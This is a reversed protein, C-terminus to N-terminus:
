NKVFSKNKNNSPILKGGLEVYKKRAEALKDYNGSNVSQAALQHTVATGTAIPIDEINRTVPTAQVYIKQNKSENQVDDLLTNQTLTDQTNSLLLETEKEEDNKNDNDYIINSKFPKEPIDNKNITIKIPQIKKPTFITSAEKDTQIERNTTFNDTQMDSNTTFNDTQMDSNTTYNDTQMDRNTTFNDTQDMRDIMVTNIPDITNRMIRRTQLNIPETQEMRDIMVNSIPEITNRM